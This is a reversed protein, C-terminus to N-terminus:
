HWTIGNAVEQYLKVYDGCVQSISYKKKTEEFTKEYTLSDVKSFASKFEEESNCLFGDVGDTVIEPLAGVSTCIIPAGCLMAEQIKHSTVEGFRPIYIMAYCTQMLNLKDEHSVEGLYRIKEGDCFSHIAKEYDDLPADKDKGRAGVVDLPLGLNKCLMIASLNGKDPTMIGMALFRDGRKGAPKYVSSDVVISQMYRTKQHYIREFERCAWRSPGVINYPSKPYRALAPAHWFLNITKLKLNYRSAFHQHSFDHIIDFSRMLYGYEMYHKAEAMMFPEETTTHPLVKIGEPYVSDDRGMVTVDNNKALESSYEWVLKEIGAYKTDPNISKVLPSILLIKM